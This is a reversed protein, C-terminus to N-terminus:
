RRAGGRRVSGVTGLPEDLEGESTGEFIGAVEALLDVWGGALERLAVVGASEENSTLARWKARYRM